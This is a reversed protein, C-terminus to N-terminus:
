KFKEEFFQWARKYDEVRDCKQFPAHYTVKDGFYLESKTIIHEYTEGSQMDRIQEWEPRDLGVGVLGKSCTFVINGRTDYWTDDENQQLVPFQINYMLILEELTLGLAMATIVDIEVLAMRREYYNRLPTQWSWEKTLSSFPKLREDNVSWYEEAFADQWSEEWLSAYYKNLCNLLLTRVFLAPKYRNSIGLPFKELGSKILRPVSLTKIFFDFPMSSCLANFEVILDIKKFTISTITGIHSTKPPIIAGSLTREGAQSLMGRFAVKYYELWNDYSGDAQQFGKLTSAYGATVNLPIYNTRPLYNEDIKSFDVIDYDAKEVCIAKPTKYMPNGVFLHPGSYIMEFLDIDPYRTERKINGANVDNTEHWCESIINETHEVTNPFKGIKQIVDIMERAHISVLKAGEWNDSNEFTRAFIKLVEEDIRVVRSPHPKINWEFRGTQENITKLGEVSEVTLQKIFCGDITSPHFLNSISYFFVRDKTGSYIHIGYKERHAVEAFLNFANQFQFHYKLRQYIEERLPYGKPDDYVGEPHILGLYGQPNIWHIGNELVCKYLNTQQGKLLPYNQVANMFVASVDNEINETYYLNKRDEEDLFDAQMKRVQPATTKRIEVEPFVESIM